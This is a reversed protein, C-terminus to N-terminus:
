RHGRTEGDSRQELTTPPQPASQTSERHWQTNRLRKAQDLLRRRAAAQEIAQHHQGIGLATSVDSRRLLWRTLYRLESWIAM